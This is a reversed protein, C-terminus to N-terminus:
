HHGNPPSSTEPPPVKYYHDQAPVSAVPPPALGPVPTTTMPGSYGMPEYKDGSGSGGGSGSAGVPGEATGRSFANDGAHGEELKDYMTGKRNRRNHLAGGSKRVTWIVAQILTAYKLAKWASHALRFSGTRKREQRAFHYWLCLYIVVWLVSFIIVLKAWLPLNGGGGGGGGGRYGGIGKSGKGSGGGKGKPIRAYITHLSDM